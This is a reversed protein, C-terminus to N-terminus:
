PLNGELSTNTSAVAESHGSSSHCRLCSMQAAERHTGEVASVVEQHCHRCAEETVRHNRDKMQISDPFRGTTFALSHFFGNSAKVAYKALLGPPTHCDNCTAAAHHSSKQWGNYFERMVHCNTCSQPNNSLYSYGKAYIFTYSGVGLAVGLLVGLVVTATNAKMLVGRTVLSHARIM